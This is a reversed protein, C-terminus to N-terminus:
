PSSNHVVVHDHDMTGEELPANTFKYTLNLLGDYQIKNCTNFFIFCENIISM